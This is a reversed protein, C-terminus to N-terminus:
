GEIELLKEIDVDDIMGDIDLLPVQFEEKKESKHLMKNLEDIYEAALWIVETKTPKKSHPSLPLLSKLIEIEDNIVKVRKRERANALKRQKSIGTLRQARRRRKKMDTGFLSNGALKQDPM